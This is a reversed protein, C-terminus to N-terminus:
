GADVVPQGPVIDVVAEDHRGRLARVSNLHRFVDQGGQKVQRFREDGEREGLCFPAPLSLDGLGESTLGEANQPQAGDSLFDRAFGLRKLNANDSCLATRSRNRMHVFNMRGLCGLGNECLRIENQQQKRERRLCVIEHIRCAEGLHLATGIKEIESAACRDDVIIENCGDLAAGDGTRDEIDESGFRKRFIM